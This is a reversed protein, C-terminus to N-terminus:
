ILTSLIKLTSLIGFCQFKCIYWQMFLMRVVWFTEWNWKFEFSMGFLGVFKSKEEEGSVRSGTASHKREVSITVFQKIHIRNQPSNGFFAFWARLCCQIQENNIFYVKIHM